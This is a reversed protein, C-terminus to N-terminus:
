REGCGTWGPAGLAGPELAEAERARALQEAAAWGPGAMERVSQEAAALRLGVGPLCDPLAQRCAVARMLSCRLMYQIHSVLRECM